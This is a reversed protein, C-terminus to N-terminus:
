TGSPGASRADTDYADEFPGLRRWRHWRRVARSLMEISNRPVAALGDITLEGVLLLARRSWLDTLAYRMRHRVGGPDGSYLPWSQDLAPTLAARRFDSGPLRVVRDPVRAGLHRAQLLGVAVVTECASDRARWAVRDWDLSDGYARLSVLLDVSWILRVFQHFPKGAHACLYVLEDEPPLGYVETGLCDVPVRATWLDRATLRNSQERWPSLSRHLEVPLHPISPHVLVADYPHEKDPARAVTWGRSIMARVAVDFQEPPVILDLDDM